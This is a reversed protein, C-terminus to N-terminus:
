LSQMRPRSTTKNLEDLIKMANEGASRMARASNRLDEIENNTEEIMNGM